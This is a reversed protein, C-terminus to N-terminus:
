SELAPTCLPCESGWCEQCFVASCYACWPGDGDTRHAPTIQVGAHCRVCQETTAIYNGDEDTYSSGAM